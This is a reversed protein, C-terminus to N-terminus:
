DAPRAGRDGRRRLRRILASLSRLPATARWSTSAYVTQLSISDSEFRSLAVLKGTSGPPLLMPSADLKAHVLRMDRQWTADEHLTYSDGGTAWRRYVATLRPIDVVGLVTSTRLLLDWDECVELTEDAGGLQLLARRPFALAMFPTMNVRLHDAIDFVAPYPTSIVSATEHGELGGAWGVTRAMQVGAVSRLVRRPHRAAEDLFSAVWQPTVLDDDDLVAVHTGSAAEFGVNLPHARTGGTAGLVRTRQRLWAPQEDLLLEVGATEIDHAVLLLEFRGDSQAALCLLVERLAEPRRLQTRMVITLQPGGPADLAEAIRNAADLSSTTILVFDELLSGRVSGTGVNAEASRSRAVIAEPVLRPNPDASTVHEAATLVCAPEDSEELLMRAAVPGHTMGHARVLRSVTSPLVVADSPVTLVLVDGETLQHALADAAHDRDPVRVTSLRGGAHLASEEAAALLTGPPQASGRFGVLIRWSRFGPETDSASALASIVAGAWRDFGLAADDFISVAVLSSHHRPSDM